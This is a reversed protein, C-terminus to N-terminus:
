QCRGRQADKGYGYQSSRPTGGQQANPNAPHDQSTALDVTKSGCGIALPLFLTILIPLIHQNFTRSLM